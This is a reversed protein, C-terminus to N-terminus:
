KEGSALTELAVDYTELMQQERDWLTSLITALHTPQQLIAGPGDVIRATARDIRAQSARDDRWPDVWLALLVGIVILLLELTFRRLSASSDMRPRRM